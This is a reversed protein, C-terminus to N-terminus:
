FAAGKCANMAPLNQLDEDLGSSVDTRPTQVVRKACHMPVTHAASPFIPLSHGGFPNSFGTQSPFISEGRRHLDFALPVQAM